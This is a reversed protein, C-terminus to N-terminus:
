KVFEQFQDHLSQPVVEQIGTKDYMMFYTCAIMIGFAPSFLAILLSIGCVGSRKLAIWHKRARNKNFPLFLILMLVSWFSWALDGLLLVFFLVRAALGSFLRDKGSAQEVSEAEEEGREFIDYIAM